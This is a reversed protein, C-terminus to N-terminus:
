ERLWVKMMRDLDLLGYNAYSVKGEKSIIFDAPSQRENGEYPGHEFGQRKAKKARSRIKSLDVLSFNGIGYAKYLPYPEESDLLIPFHVVKDMLFRRASEEGSQTIYVIRGHIQIEEAREILEKFDLQCIPCGFYRSFVLYVREKGRQDSLRFYGTNISCLAVEPAEDGVKLRGMIGPAGQVYM